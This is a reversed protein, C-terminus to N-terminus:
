SEPPHVYSALKLFFWLHNDLDEEFVVELLNQELITETYDGTLINVIANRCIDITPQTSIYNKFNEVETRLLCGESRLYSAILTEGFIVVEKIESNKCYELAERPMGARFLLLVVFFPFTQRKEDFIITLREPCDAFNNKIRSVQREFAEFIRDKRKLEVGQLVIDRYVKEFYLCTSTAIKVENESKSKIEPIAVKYQYKLVETELPLKTSPFQVSLEAITKWLEILYYHSDDDDQRMNGEFVSIKNAMTAIDVHRSQTKLEYYDV